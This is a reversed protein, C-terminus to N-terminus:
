CDAILKRFGEDKVLREKEVFFWPTFEKKDKDSWKILTNWDVWRYEDIESRNPKVRDNYVGVLVGM